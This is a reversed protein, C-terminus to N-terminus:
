ALTRSRYFSLAPTLGDRTAPERSERLQNGLWPESRDASPEATTMPGWRTEAVRDGLCEGAPAEQEDDQCHM